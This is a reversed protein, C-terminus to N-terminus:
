YKVKIYMHKFVTIGNTQVIFYGAGTAPLPCNLMKYQIIEWMIVKM